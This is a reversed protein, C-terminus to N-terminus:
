GRPAGASRQDIVFFSRAGIPARKQTLQKDPQRNKRM